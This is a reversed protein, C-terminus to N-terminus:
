REKSKLKDMKDDIIKKFHKTLQKSVYTSTCGLVAAIEVMTRNPDKNFERFVKAVSPNNYKKAEV